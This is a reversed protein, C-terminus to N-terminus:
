LTVSMREAEERAALADQMLNLAATRAELNSRNSREVDRLRRQLDANAVRLREEGEQLAEESDARERAARRGERLAWGAAAYRALDALLRADEADFGNEPAHMIAWLTGTVAGDVEWPAVLMEYIRPKLGRMAPYCHEAAENFLLVQRRELVTGCPSAERPMTLHLHPALLGAIAHWRFQGHEGGPELISLGASDAGCLELALEATRQFLTRPERTLAHTLSVLARNERAHDPPRTPRARLEDTILADEVRAEAAHATATSM